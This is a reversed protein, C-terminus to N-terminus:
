NSGYQSFRATRSRRIGQEVIQDLVGKDKLKQLKRDQVGSEILAAITEDGQAGIQDLLGSNVLSQLDIDATSEHVLQM